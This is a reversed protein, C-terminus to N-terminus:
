VLVAVELLTLSLDGEAVECVASVRQEVPGCDRMISGTPALLRVSDWVLVGRMVWVVDGAAVTRVVPAPPEVVEGPTVMGLAEIVALTVPMDRRKKLLPFPFQSAGGGISATVPLDAYTGEGYKGDGYGRAM